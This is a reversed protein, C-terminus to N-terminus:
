LAAMLSNQSNSGLASKINITSGKRRDEPHFM